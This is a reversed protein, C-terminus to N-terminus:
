LLLKLYLLFKLYLLLKLSLQAARTHKLVSLSTPPNSEEQRPSTTFVLEAGKKRAYSFIADSMLKFLAPAVMDSSNKSFLDEM